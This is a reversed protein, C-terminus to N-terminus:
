PCKKPPDESESWFDLIGDLCVVVKKVQPFQLATKEVVGKFIFPSGDGSFTAGEPMTFYTYATGKELRVSLLKIGFMASFLKQNEEAKTAGDALAKLTNRLPARADVKRKVAFLNYPNKETYEADYDDYEKALYIKVDMLNSAKKRQASVTGIGNLVVMAVIFLSFIRYKMIIKFDELTKGIQDKLCKEGKRFLM